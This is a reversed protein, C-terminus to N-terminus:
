RLTTKIALAVASSSVANSVTTPLRARYPRRYSAPQVHQSRIEVLIFGWETNQTQLAKKNKKTFLHANMNHQSDSPVYVTRPPRARISRAHHVKSVPHKTRVLCSSWTLLANVAHHIVTQCINVNCAIRYNQLQRLLLPTDFKIHWGKQRLRYWLDRECRWQKARSLQVRSHKVRQHQEWHTLCPKFMYESIINSNLDSELPQLNRQMSFWIIEGVNNAWATMHATPWLRRTHKWILVPMFVILRPEM